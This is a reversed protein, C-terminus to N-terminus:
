SFKIDPFTYVIEREKGGYPELDEAFIKVNFLPSPSDLRRPSYVLYEAKDPKEIFITKSM